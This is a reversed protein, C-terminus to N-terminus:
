TQNSVTQLSNVKLFGLRVGKLAVKAYVMPPKAFPDDDCVSLTVYNRRTGPALPLTVCLDSASERLGM